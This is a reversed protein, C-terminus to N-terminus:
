TNPMLISNPRNLTIQVTGGSGAATSQKGVTVTNTAKTVTLLPSPSGGAIQEFTCVPCGRALAAADFGWNDTVVATTDADAFTITATQMSAGAAQTATAAVTGSGPYLYALTGAM